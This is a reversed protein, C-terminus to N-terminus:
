RLGRARYRNTAGNSAGGANRQQPQPPSHPPCLRGGTVLRRMTIGAVRRHLQSMLPWVFRAAPHRYQILFALVVRDDGVQCVYQTTMLSEIEELLVWGEGRGIVLGPVDDPAGALARVWAPAAHHFAVTWEEPSMASARPTTAIVADSYDPRSLTSLERVEPPVHMQWRVADSEHKM